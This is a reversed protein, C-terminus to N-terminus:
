AVTLRREIGQATALRHKRISLVCPHCISRLRIRCTRSRNKTSRRCLRVHRIGHVKDGTHLSSVPSLTSLQRHLLHWFNMMNLRTDMRCIYRYIITRDNLSIYTVMSSCLYWDRMWRTRKRRRRRRVAAAVIITSAAAVVTDNYDAMKDSCRSSTLCYREDDDHSENINM